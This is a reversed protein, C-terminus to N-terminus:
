PSVKQQVGLGSRLGYVAIQTRNELNLKQLLNRVHARVTNESVELESAIEKNSLGKSILRVVEIERPTLDYGRGDRNQYGFRPKAAMKTILKKVVDESFAAKGELVKTIQSVLTSITADKVVYGKAGAQVARWIDEEDNSATLMIVDTEPMESTIMRTAEAGDIEPLYLDMLVMNPRLERAKTVAETGNSAEGVVEISPAQSLMMMIGQRILVHDEAILLRTVM